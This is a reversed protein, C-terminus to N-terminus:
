GELGDCFIGDLNGRCALVAPNTFSYIAGYRDPDGADDPFTDAGVMSRVGSFDVTSGFETNNGDTNQLVDVEAFAGGPPRAFLYVSKDQNGPSTTMLLDGRLRLAFSFEDIFAANSASAEQVRGWANAGGANRRFVHFSGSNSPAGVGNNCVACGVVATDSDIAVSWGFRDGGVKDDAPGDLVAELNWGAGARRFVWARGFSAGTAGGDSADADPAGIVLADNSVAVADGFGTTNGPDPSPVLAHLSWTSGSRRYVVAAGANSFGTLNASSDGIVITDGQMAISEFNRVTIGGQTPPTELTQRLVFGDGVRQFIRLDDASDIIAAWEGDAAIGLGFRFTAEGPDLRDLYTLSADPELRVIYVAGDLGEKQPAGVLALDGALALSRGFRGNDDTAPDIDLLTLRDVQIFDQALAAPAIFALVAVLTAAAFRALMM